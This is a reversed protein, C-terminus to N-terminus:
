LLIFIAKYDRLKGGPHPELKFTPDTFIQWLQPFFRQYDKDFLVAIVVLGIDKVSDGELFSSIKRSIM